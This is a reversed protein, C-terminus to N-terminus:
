TMYIHICLYSRIFFFNSENLSLQVFLLATNVSRFLSINEVIHMCYTYMKNNSSPNKRLTKLQKAYLFDSLKEENQQQNYPICEM